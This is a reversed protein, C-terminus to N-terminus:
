FTMLIGHSEGYQASLVLVLTNASKEAMQQSVTKREQCLPEWGKSKQERNVAALKFVIYNFAFIISAVRVNILATIRETYNM